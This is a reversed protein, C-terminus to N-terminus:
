YATLFEATVNIYIRRVMDDSPDSMRQAFPTGEFLYLYGGDIKIPRDMEYLYEEIEKLKESIEQWKTSRYWLNATLPIQNEIKDEYVSYTIYPMEPANNKDSPLTNEDYAHIGFGSWFNHIAQAKDM